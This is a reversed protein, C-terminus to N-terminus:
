IIKQMNPTEIVTVGKLKKLQNAATQISKLTSNSVQDLDASIRVLNTVNIEVTKNPTGQKLELIQKRETQPSLVGSKVANNLCVNLRTQPHGTPNGCPFGGLSGM